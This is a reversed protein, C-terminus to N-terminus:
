GNKRVGRRKPQPPPPVYPTAAIAAAVDLRPVVLGNRQDIVPRGTVKLISEMQEASLTRQSVQQMLAIAGAVHPAAMSTGSMSMFVNNRGTATIVAGPAFFDVAPSTNSFCTVEDRYTSETECVSQRGGAADYTAGVGLVDSMCSPLSTGITSSQNGSSATILVGRSRFDAVLERMGLSIASAECPTPEYITWSGLSMNIVSVEPHAKSIWELARYIQTFSRFARNSDLVKVAVINVGPAMGMPAIKGSGALIGTVHTGHGEDDRASGSGSQQVDGNPCCGTGDLNDCFCQEGVIRGAFDVSKNDIGTDLVAVTIGRGDFGKAHVIDAGVLPISDLLAGQGGDDISIARVRPDNALTALESRDVVTSFVAGNGWTTIEGATDLSAAVDARVSMLSAHRLQSSGVAVVVRVRDARLPLATAILIAVLFRVM